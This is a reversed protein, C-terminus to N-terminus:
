SAEIKLFIYLNWQQKEERDAREIQTQQYQVRLFYTITFM